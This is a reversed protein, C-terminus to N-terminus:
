FCYKVSTRVLFSVQFKEKEVKHFLIYKIGDEDRLLLLSNEECIALHYGSFIPEKAGFVCTFAFRVTRKREVHKIVEGKPIRYEIARAIVDDGDDQLFSWTVYM